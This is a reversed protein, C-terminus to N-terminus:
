ESHQELETAMRHEIYSEAYEELFEKLSYENLYNM